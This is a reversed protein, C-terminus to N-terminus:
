NGLNVHGHMRWKCGDYQLLLHHHLLTFEVLACMNMSRVHQQQANYVWGQLITVFSVDSRRADRM